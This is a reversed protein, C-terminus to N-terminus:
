QGDPRDELYDKGAQHMLPQCSNLTNAVQGVNRIVMM